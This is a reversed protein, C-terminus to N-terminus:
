RRSGPGTAASSADATAPNSRHPARVTLFLHRAVACRYQHDALRRGVVKPAAVHRYFRESLNLGAVTHVTRGVESRLHSAHRTVSRPPPTRRLQHPHDQFPIVNDDDDEDPDSPHPHDPTNRSSATTSSACSDATTRPRTTPRHGHAIHDVDCNDIPEDCGSPHQCHRDRAQIAGRLAGTFTRQSSTGIARTPTDFILTRIDIADLYPVIQGPRIVTGNSLECLRTFEDVGCIIQLLIRAPRGTTAMARRAMEVLALARLEARSKDPHQKALEDAITDLAKTVIAGGIPDLQGDIAVVDGVPTLTLSPTTVPETGDRGTEADARHRWYTLAKHFQAFRMARAQGVLLEEDRAFLEERGARAGALVDIHDASIDGAAFAAAATPM